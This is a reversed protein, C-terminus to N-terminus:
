SFPQGSGTTALGLWQIEHQFHCVQRRCHLSMRTSGACRASLRLTHGLGLGLGLRFASGSSLASRVQRKAEFCAQGLDDTWAPGSTVEKRVRDMSSRCPLAPAPPTLIPAMWPQAMAMGYALGHGM